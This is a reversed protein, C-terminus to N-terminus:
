QKKRLRAEVVPILLKNFFIGNKNKISDDEIYSYKMEIELSDHTLRRLIELIVLLKPIKNGRAELLVEKYNFNLDMLISLILKKAPLSGVWYKRMNKM